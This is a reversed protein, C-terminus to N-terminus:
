DGRWYFKVSLASAMLWDNNQERGIRQPLTQNTIDVIQWRAASPYSKARTLASHIENMADSLTKLDHHKGNLTVDLPIVTNKDMHMSEPTSPGIECTLGPGTPLAGRTVTAFPQTANMLGIVAELVQDIVSEAQYTTESM